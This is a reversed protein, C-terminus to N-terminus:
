IPVRNVENIAQGKAESEEIVAHFPCKGAAGKPLSGGEASIGEKISAAMTELGGSQKILEEMMLRGMELGQEVMALTVTTTEAEQALTEVRGQTRDRMFGHPVRLLRDAAAEEWKLASHLPHGEADLGVVPLTTETAPTQEAIVESENEMNIPLNGLEEVIIERVHELTITSLRRVRATKEVRAKTRRRQYADKITRLELRADKSWKLKRGDLTEEEEAGGEQGVIKRIMEETIVEFDSKGCVVCKVPDPERATVGCHTCMSVRSELARDFALAEAVKRSTRDKSYKPMFRNMAETILADTIVSHGQEVALRLIGTRAIGRVLHPVREM